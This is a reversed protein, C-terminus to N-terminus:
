GLTTFTWPMINEPIPVSDEETMALKQLCLATDIDQLQTYSIGHGLRNLIQILEVNGTLTKVAYPLLIHKPPKLKGSHVNYLVDQGLSSISLQTKQAIHDPSEEGTFVVTLLKVLSPPMEVHHVNIRSPNPPWEEDAEQKKIDARICLGVPATM